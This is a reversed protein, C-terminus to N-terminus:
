AAEAAPDASAQQQRLMAEVREPRVPRSFLYGQLTDCGIQILYDRQAPTEVGEATVAMGLSAAMSAIATIVAQHNRQPSITEGMGLDRVFSQDIKLRDIPLKQLYALSSYGTGFDDIAIGVGLAQVAAVKEIADKTSALLLSETLELELFQPPLGTDALTTKLIDLFDEQQFQLASVNVAMRPCGAGSHQWKMAQRCAEDLVWYGIPLVLGCAEAVPIFKAPSIRGLQPHQWRILAEVGVIKGAPNMQPQYELLFENQSIARRLQSEMELRELAAAGMKPDFRRACNRGDAKAAYMASEACRQLGAADMGNLPYIATGVSASVFLERGDIVFPETLSEVLREAVLMADAPTAIETAALTFEDGGTRVLVDSERIAGTLRGAVQRLLVDGVHHGLTDNVTKFGDLDIMMLSMLRDHRAANSIWKPLQADLQARNPLGTLPDHVADYELRAILQHHEIALGCLSALSQVARLSNDDFALCKDHFLVLYGLPKGTGALIPISNCAQIGEEAAPAHLAALRRDATIDSVFVPQDGLLASPNPTSENLISDIGLVFGASLKPAAAIERRSGENLVVMGRVNEWQREAAKCIAQLTQSLPEDRAIMELFQRRDQELWDALKRQTIDEETAIFHEIQGSPGRVPEADVRLWYRRGTRSYNIIEVQFSKGRRISDRMVDVTAPDTDAGQLLNGPKQGILDSLSYETLATFAENAWELRGEPDTILIPNHTRSAVLALKNAQAESKLQLQRQLKTHTIDSAFGQIHSPNGQEDRVLQASLSVWVRTRDKRLLQTEFQDIRGFETLRTLFAQRDEARTYLLATVDTLQEVAQTESEFGMLQLMAPNAALCQGQLTSQFIGETASEFISRYKREALEIAANREALETTRLEVRRELNTNAALLAKSTWQWSDVLQNFARATLGLEDARGAEALPRIDEGGAIRNMQDAMRRIPRSVLFATALYVVLLATFILGLCLLAAAIIVQAPVPHAQQSFWLAPPVMATALLVPAVFAFFKAQLTM